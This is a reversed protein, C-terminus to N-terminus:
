RQPNAYPDYQDNLGAKTDVVAMEIVKKDTGKDVTEVPISGSGGAPFTEAPKAPMNLNYVESLTSQPM